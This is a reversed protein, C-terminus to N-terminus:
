INYLTYYAIYKVKKFMSSLPTCLFKPPCPLLRFILAWVYMKNQYVFNCSIILLLWQCSNTKRFRGDIDGVKPLLNYKILWNWAFTGNLYGRFIVSFWLFHFIPKSYILFAFPFSILKSPTFDIWNKQWFIQYCIWM